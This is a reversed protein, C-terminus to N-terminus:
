LNVQQYTFESVNTYQRAHEITISVLGGKEDLDMVVNENLDKTQAVKKESLTVLLTDTDPFYNVKM